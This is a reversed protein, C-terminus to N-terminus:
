WLSLESNTSVVLEGLNTPLGTDPDVILRVGEVGKASNTDDDFPTAVVHNRDLQSSSTTSSMRQQVILFDRVERVLRAITRPPLNESSLSGASGGTNSRHYTSSM